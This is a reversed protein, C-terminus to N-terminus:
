RFAAGLTDGSVAAVPSISRNSSRLLLLRRAKAAGRL